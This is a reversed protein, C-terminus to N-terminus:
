IEQREENSAQSEQYEKEWKHVEKLKKNYDDLTVWTKGELDKDLQGEQIVVPTPPHVSSDNSLYVISQKPFSTCCGMLFLCLLILSYKM